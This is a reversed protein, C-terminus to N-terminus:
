EVSGKKLLCRRHQIAGVSRQIKVSMETDTIKHALVVDDEHETWARRPYLFTTRGYYKRKYRLATARFKEMDKYAAKNM